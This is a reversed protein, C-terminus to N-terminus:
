PLISLWNKKLIQQAKMKNNWFFESPPHTHEVSIYNSTDYSIFIPVGLSDKSYFCIDVDKTVNFEVIAASNLFYEQSKIKEKTKMNAVSFTLAKKNSIKSSHINIFVLLTKINRNTDKVLADFSLHSGKIKSMQYPFEGMYSSFVGNKNFSINARENVPSSDVKRSIPTPLSYYNDELIFDENVPIVVALQSVTLSYDTSNLIINNKNNFKVEDVKSWKKSDATQTYIGVKYDLFKQSKARRNPTIKSLNISNIIDDGVNVLFLYDSL